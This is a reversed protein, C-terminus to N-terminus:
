VTHLQVYRPNYLSSVSKFIGALNHQLKTTTPQKSKRHMDTHTPTPINHKNLYFIRERLHCITSIVVFFSKWNM